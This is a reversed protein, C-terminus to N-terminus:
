TASAVLHEHSHLGHTSSASAALQTHARCPVKPSPALESPAALNPLRMSARNVYELTYRYHVVLSDVASSWVDRPHVANNHIDYNLDVLDVPTLSSGLDCLNVEIRFM